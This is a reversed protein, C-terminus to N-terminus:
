GAPVLEGVAAQAGAPAHGGAVIIAREVAVVGADSLPQPLHGAPQVAGTSANIAWIGSSQSTSSDGRGGVVYVTSGLAAAGAHTLPQPLKGIQQV